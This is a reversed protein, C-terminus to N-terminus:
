QIRPQFMLVPGEKRASVHDKTAYQSPRVDQKEWGPDADARRIDFEWLLRSFTLMVQALALPKGICSRSGISFPMYAHRETEKRRAEGDAPRYWREPNYTEPDQYYKASHHISYIGVAVDTGEPIFTGEIVAGGREVERWLAAGGPPSLRLAEDICARLFACSNLKPGVRIEDLSSFTSRVEDAARRYSASCGTLYHATAALTASTTDSGAVVFLATETSLEMPSLEKGTDPDKCSHLFSFIDTGTTAGMAGLRQKLLRRIFRVFQDRGVISAPFLWRDLNLRLFGPEQLLVSLRVNSEELASMAYRYQPNNITDYNTDFSVATMSDFALYNFEKSMDRPSEVSSSRIAESFRSLRSLLKPEFKRISSESFAQSLVRRRRAHQLKDRITLLNPAQQALVRYNTYKKVKAGHGYIDYLADVNNILLRNPAYRLYDGYKQHCRYMDLHIDGKWAHYASYLNTVKALLPGPYRALPHFLIRYVCLVIGYAVLLMGTVVLGYAAKSTWLRIAPLNAQGLGFVAVKIPAEVSTEM